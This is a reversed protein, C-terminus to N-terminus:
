RTPINLIVTTGEGERSTIEITGGLRELARKVLPLGVGLGRKKTTQFPVFLKDLQEQSMGSGTDSIRLCVFKAAKAASTAIALRGGNPMAEVANALLSNFIQGLVQADASVQPLKEQLDWSPSVGLRELERDFGQAASRILDNLPLPERRGTGQHAYTLLNRVWSELRDVEAIIDHAQENRAQADTDVLLEASTRISSLPNRIGHAVASAMEGVAAFTEKSVLQREQERMVRSARRVLWFLVTFLFLGGLLACLWILRLGKYITGFLAKPEKYVEVVGIVSRHQLDLVPIYNEVFDKGATTLFIHEPKSFKREELIDAEVALKGELAEDLEPNLDFKKGIIQKDSSWVVVRDKSYVNTRLVDPMTSIHHLFDELNRDSSSFGAHQFYTSAHEVDTISQVFLATMEADRRLMEEVLFRSLLMASVLGVLGISLLSLAAFWQTLNFPKRQWWRAVKHPAGDGGAEGTEHISLRAPNTPHQSVSTTM